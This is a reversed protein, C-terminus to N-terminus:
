DCLLHCEETLLGLDRSTGYFISMLMHGHLARRGQGLSMRDLQNLFISKWNCSGSGSQGWSPWPKLRSRQCDQTVHGKYKYNIRNIPISTNGGRGGVVWSGCGVLVWSGRGVVWSKRIVESIPVLLKPSWM